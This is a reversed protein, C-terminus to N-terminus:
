AVGVLQRDSPSPVPVADTEALPPRLAERFLSIRGLFDEPVVVGAAFENVKGSEDRLGQRDRGNGRFCVYSRHRVADTLTGRYHLPLVVSKSETRGLEFRPRPNFAARFWSTEPQKKEM